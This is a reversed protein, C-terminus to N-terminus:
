SLSCCACCNFVLSLSCLTKGRPFWLHLFGWLKRLSLILVFPLVGFYYSASGVATVKKKELELTKKKRLYTSCKLTYSNHSLYLTSSFGSMVLVRSSGVESPSDLIWRM